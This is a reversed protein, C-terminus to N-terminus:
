IGYIERTGNMHEVNPIQDHLKIPYSISPTHIYTQIIYYEVCKTQM